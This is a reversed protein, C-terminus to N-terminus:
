TQKISESMEEKLNKGNQDHFNILPSKEEKFPLFLEVAANDEEEHLFCYVGKVIENTLESKILTVYRKSSYWNLNESAMVDTVKSKINHFLPKNYNKEKIIDRLLFTCDIINPYEDCKESLEEHRYVFSLFILIKEELTYQAFNGETYIESLIDLTPFEEFGKFKILAKKVLSFESIYKSLGFDQREIRELVGEGKKQNYVNNKFDDKTDFNPPIKLVYENNTLNWNEIEESFFCYLFEKYPSSQKKVYLFFIFNDKVYEKHIKVNSGQNLKVTRGKCQIIGLKVYNDLEKFVILDSGRRDFLPNLVLLDLKLLNAEITRQAEFEIPKNDM